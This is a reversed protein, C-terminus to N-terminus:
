VRATRPRAGFMSSSGLINLEKARKENMLKQVRQQRKAADDMLREFFGDQEEQTIVRTSPALQEYERRMADERERIKDETFQIFKQTRIARYVGLKQQDELLRELRELGDWRTRALLKVTYLLYDVGRGDVMQNVVVPGAGAHGGTKVTKWGPEGACAVAAAGQREMEAASLQQLGDSCFPPDTWKIGLDGPDAMLESRPRDRNRDFWADYEGKYRKARALLASLRAGTIGDDGGGGGRWGLLAFYDVMQKADEADRQAPPGMTMEWWKKQLTQLKSDRQSLETQYRQMFLMSRIAGALAAVKKDGKSSAIAQVQARPLSPPPTSSPYPNITATM